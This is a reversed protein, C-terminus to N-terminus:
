KIRKSLNLLKGYAINNWSYPNEKIYKENLKELKISRSLLHPSVQWGETNNFLNIGCFKLLCFVLESCFYKNKTNNSENLRTMFRFVMKYDYKAGNVKDIFEVAKLQQSLSLQILYYDINKNKRSSFGVGKFEKSEFSLDSDIMISAHSYVGRTQWKILNGILGTGKHLEIVM